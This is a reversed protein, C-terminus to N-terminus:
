VTGEVGEIAKGTACGTIAVFLFHVCIVTLGMCRLVLPIM